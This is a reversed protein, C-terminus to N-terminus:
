GEADTIRLHGAPIAVVFAVALAGSSLELTHQRAFTDIQALHAVCLFVTDVAEVLQYTTM